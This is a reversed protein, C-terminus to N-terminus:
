ICATEWYRGLQHVRLRERSNSIDRVLIHINLEYAGRAHLSSQGPDLESAYAHRSMSSFRAPADLLRWVLQDVLHNSRALHWPERIQQVMSELVLQLRLAGPCERVDGGRARRLMRACHDRAARQRSGIKARALEDSHISWSM